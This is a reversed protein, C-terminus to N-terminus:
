GQIPVTSQVHMAKAESLSNVTMFHMSGCPDGAVNGRVTHECSEPQADFYEAGCKGCIHIENSKLMGMMSQLPKTVITNVKKAVHGAKRLITNMPAEKPQKPKRNEEVIAEHLQQQLMHVRDLTAQSLMYIGQWYANFTLPARCTGRM